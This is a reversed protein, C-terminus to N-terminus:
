TQLLSSGFSEFQVPIGIFWTLSIYLRQSAHVCVGNSNTEHRLELKIRLNDQTPTNYLVYLFAAGCEGSITPRM